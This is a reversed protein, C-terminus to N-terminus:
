LWQGRALPHRGAACRALMFRAAEARPVTPFRRGRGAPLVESGDKPYALAGRLYLWHVRLPDPRRTTRASKELVEGDRETRQTSNEASEDQDDQAPIPSERIELFPLHFWGAHEVRWRLYGAATKGTVPVKAAFLDHVDNLVNCLAAANDPDLRAQTLLKDTTALLAGPAGGKECDGALALLAAKFDTPKDARTPAGFTEQFILAPPKAPLRDLYYPLTPPPEDDFGGTARVAAPLGAALAALWLLRAAVRPLRNLRSNAMPHIRSIRPHAPPLARRVSRGRPRAPGPRHDAHRARAVSCVLIDAAPRASDGRAGAPCRGRARRRGPRLSTRGRPPFRGAAGRALGGRRHGTGTGPRLRARAPRLAGAPRPRFRKAAGVARQRRGRAAPAPPDPRSRVTGPDLLALAQALSWGGGTAGTPGPPDPLRFLVVGRADAARAQAVAARVAAREAERVAVYAGTPVPSDGVRTARTARLVTTGGDPPRDLGLTANFVLDEWDWSRLHGRSRGAADYLTVRAFVPLGASWPIPCRAWSRLQAGLEAPDLLRRPQCPSPAGPAPVPDTRTDYLMPFVEDVAPWLDARAPADAWGALATVTLRRIDAIRRAARLRDAYVPLLRDPCDFDLQLERGPAADAVPRLAQGLAEGSFLEPSRIATSVRVVPVIGLAPDTPDPPLAATRRFILAGGHLELEGAQWYLRNVGAARLTAREAATLPEARNWVWFAPPAPGGRALAPAGLLAACVATTRVVRLIMEATSANSPLRTGKALDKSTTASREPHCRKPM